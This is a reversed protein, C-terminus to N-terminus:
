IVVIRKNLHDCTYIFGDKDACIGYPEKFNCNGHSAVYEGEHLPTPLSTMLMIILLM